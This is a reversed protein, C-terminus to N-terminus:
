MKLSQCWIGHRMKKLADIEEDMAKKWEKSSSAKMYITPEKANNEEALAANVYKPNKIKRSTIRLYLGYAIGEDEQIEELQSPHAEESTRQHM